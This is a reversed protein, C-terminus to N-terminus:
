RVVIILSRGRVAGLTATVHVSGVRVGRVSPAHRHVSSIHVRGGASLGWRPAVSVMNGFRDRTFATLMFSKGLALRLASPTILLRVPAAARVAEGQRIVTSGYTATLMAVGATTERSYFPTSYIAGPAIQVKLSRTWPGTPSMSVVGHRSSSRVTMVVPNVGAPTWLRVNRPGSSTGAVVRGVGSITGLGGGVPPVIVITRRAVLSGHTATVTVPEAAVGRLTVAAAPGHSITAALSPTVSWTTTPAPGIANGWADSGMATLTRSAGVALTLTSPAISLTHVPGPAVTAINAIRGLAGLATIGQSGAHTDWYSFTATSQTPPITLLVNSPSGPGAPGNVSFRGASSSSTLTLTVGGTPAPHLLHVTLGSVPTGAVPNLQGSIYGVCPADADLRPTHPWYQVMALGNQTFGSYNCFGLGGALTTAGTALWSVTGAPFISGPTFITHSDNRNAYIGVSTAHQADLYAISGSIAATNLTTSSLWRNASEVDLWWAFPPTPTSASSPLTKLANTVRVYADAAANWGYDFACAPTATTGNPKTLVCKKPSAQAITPWRTPLQTVKGTASVRVAPGPDDINIYLQSATGAWQLEAALCSNSSFPYGNNVGVIGITPAGPLSEIGTGSCQPWSVDWSGGSTAATAFSTLSVGVAIVVAIALAVRRGQTRTFQCRVQQCM